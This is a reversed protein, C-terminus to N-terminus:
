RCYRPVAPVGLCPYIKQKLIADDKTNLYM